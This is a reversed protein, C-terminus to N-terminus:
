YIPRERVEALSVFGRSKDSTGYTRSKKNIQKFMSMDEPSM